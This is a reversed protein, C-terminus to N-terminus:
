NVSSKLLPEFFQNVEDLLAMKEATDLFTARAANQSLQQLQQINLNLAMQTQLFNETLYGGFYAPDDSNITVCLGEELLTSLNHDSLTDFVRLKVNSLPCVTLPIQKDKLYQILEPDENSRVGHDIRSTKLDRIAQWIYRPPGEEGAHAVTLYGETLAERFVAKFRSAPNGKESSDLGVGQIWSKFTASSRFDQLRCRPQSAAPLVHDIRILHGM